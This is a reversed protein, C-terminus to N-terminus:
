PIMWLAVTSSPHGGVATSIQEYLHLTLGSQSRYDEPTSDLYPGADGDDTARGGVQPRGFSAPGWKSGQLGM